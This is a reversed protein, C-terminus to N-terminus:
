DKLAQKYNLNKVKEHDEDSLSVRTAEDSKADEKINVFLEDKELFKLYILFRLFYVDMSEM